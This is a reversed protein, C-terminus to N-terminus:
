TAKQIEPTIIKEYANLVLKVKIEAISRISVPLDFYAKNAFFLPDPAIDVSQSMQYAQNSGDKFLLIVELKDVVSETSLFVTVKASDNILLGSEFDKVAVKTIQISQLRLYDFNSYTILASCLCAVVALVQLKKRFYDKNEYRISVAKFFIKDILM